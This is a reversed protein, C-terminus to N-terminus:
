FPTSNVTMQVLCSSTIDTTVLIFSLDFLLVVFARIIYLVPCGHAPLLCRHRTPFGEVAKFGTCWTVTLVFSALSCSSLQSLRSDLSCSWPSCSSSSGWAVACLITRGLKSGADRFSFVWNPFYTSASKSVWRSDMNLNKAIAIQIVFLQLLIVEIMCWMVRSLSNLSSFGLIDYGL